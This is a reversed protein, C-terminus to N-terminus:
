ASVRLERMARRYLVSYAIAYAAGGALLGLLVGVLLLTPLGTAMGVGFARAHVSGLRLRLYDPDVQPAAVPAPPAPARYPTPANEINM